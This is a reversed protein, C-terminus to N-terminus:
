MQSAARQEERYNELSDIRQRAAAERAEVILKLQISAQALYAELKDGTIYTGSLKNLKSWGQNFTQAFRDSVLGVALWEATQTVFFEDTARVIQQLRNRRLTASEGAREYDETRQQAQEIVMMMFDAFAKFFYAIEEVIEKSRKLAAVSVNLSRVALEITQEESRKGDLLITIKVLEAAQERRLSEYKEVNTLMQQELQRLTLAQQKQQESVEGAATGLERLLAGLEQELDSLRAQQNRLEEQAQALRATLEEKALDTTAAALQSELDAVDQRRAQVIEGQANRKAELNSQEVIKNPDVAPQGASSQSALAAAGIAAAGGGTAALAAVPVVATLVQTMMKILSAWFSRQEASRAQKGYDVALKEFRVVQEQLATVLSDLSARRASAQLIEDKIRANAEITQSLAIESRDIVAEIDKLIRDYRDVISGLSERVGQAASIIKRAIVLLDTSVFQKIEDPDDSEKIDLWDPLVNRLDSGITRAIRISGKIKRESEQQAEILRNMIGSIHVRLEGHEQPTTNYAIYLLEIAHDTDTKARATDYSGEIKRVYSAVLPSELTPLDLDDRTILRTVEQDIEHDLLTNRNTFSVVVSM